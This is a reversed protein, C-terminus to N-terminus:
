IGRTEAVLTPGSRTLRLTHLGTFTADPRVCYSQGTQIAQRGASFTVDQFCALRDTRPDGNAPGVWVERDLPDIALASCDPKTCVVALNADVTARPPDGSPELEIRYTAFSGVNGGSIRFASAHVVIQMPPALQWRHHQLSVLVGGSALLILVVGAWRARHRLVLVTVAVALLLVTATVYLDIM